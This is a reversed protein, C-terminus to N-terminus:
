PPAAEGCNVREAQMLYDGVRIEEFSYGKYHQMSTISMYKAKSNAPDGDACMTPTFPIKMSEIKTCCMDADDERLGQMLSEARLLPRLAVGVSQMTWESQLDESSASQPANGVTERTQWAIVCEAGLPFTLLPACVGVLIQLRCFVNDKGCGLSRLGHAYVCCDRAVCRVSCRLTVLARSVGLTARIM